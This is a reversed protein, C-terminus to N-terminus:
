LVSVVTFDNEAVSRQVSQPTRCTLGMTPVFGVRQDSMRVHQMAQEVQNVTNAIVMKFAKYLHYFKGFTCFSIPNVRLIFYELKKKYRQM